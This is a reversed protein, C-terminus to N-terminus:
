SVDLRLDFSVDSSTLNAQHVEVAIVNAGTGLVSTPVSFSTFAREGDGDVPTLAFTTPTIAGAPMNSRAVEVGNIYVVAGDDRLLSLSAGRLAAADSVSFSHRLWYTVHGKQLLSAEDGDGFGLQARGRPWASDSYGTSNWTSSPAVGNDQYAWTSGSLVLTRPGQVFPFETYRREDRGDVSSFDGGIRLKDPGVLITWVGTYGRVQPAFSDLVAGTGSNLAVLGARTKGEFATDFHGGAYLTTGDLAVAQVDGDTGGRWERSGSGANYAWVQGGPGGIAAYVRASDAAISYVVCPNTADFCAAAPRWATVAGTSASVSGLYDRPQGSLTRFYGGVLLSRGDAAVALANVKENASGTFTGDRAGTVTSVAALRAQWVDNVKTFRGGIYLTDGARAMAFVGGYSLTTRFTTISAGTSVSVAGLGTRAQGALSTFTGGVYVTTGDASVELARVEGGTAGPNWPLLEGTTANIAALGARSRTVSDDPSRLATFTGGLVITDGARAVAYVRGATPTWSATPSASYDAQASGTGAVLTVFMSAIVVLVSAFTRPPRKM